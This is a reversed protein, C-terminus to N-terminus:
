PKPLIRLISNELENEDSSQTTNFFRRDNLIKIDLNGEQRFFKYTPFLTAPPELKYRSLRQRIFNPGTVKLHWLLADVVDKLQENARAAIYFSVADHLRKEVYKLYSEDAGQYRSPHQTKIKDQLLLGSILKGFCDYEETCHNILLSFKSEDICYDPLIQQYLLGEIGVNAIFNKVTNFVYIGLHLLCGDEKELFLPDENCIEEKLKQIRLKDYFFDEYPTVEKGQKLLSKIYENHSHEFTVFKPTRM